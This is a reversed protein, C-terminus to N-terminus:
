YKYFHPCIEQLKDYGIMAYQFTEILYELGGILNLAFLYLIIISLLWVDVLIVGM